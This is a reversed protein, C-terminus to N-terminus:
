QELSWYYATGGPHDVTIATDVDRYDSDLTHGAFYIKTGAATREIKTVIGTHDRDGSNDWDFQAIDGVEVEDRQTDDLPTALDPRTALWDRMATSSRWTDSAKYVDVPDNYWEDDQEWGRAILTQSAFNVCDTIGLVGYEPNYDKWYKLAYDIQAQVQPTLAPEVAVATPEPAATPMPREIVDATETVAAPDAGDADPGSTDASTVAGIVVVAIAILAASIALAITMRRRRSGESPQPPPADSM